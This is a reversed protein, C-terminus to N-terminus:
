RPSRASPWCRRLFPWAPSHPTLDFPRKVTGRLVEAVRRLCEDGTLHGYHDNYNKFHDIDIM